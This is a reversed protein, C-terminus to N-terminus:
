DVRSPWQSSGPSTVSSTLSQAKCLLFGQSAPIVNHSIKMPLGPPTGMKSQDLGPHAETLPLGLGIREAPQSAHHHGQDTEEM